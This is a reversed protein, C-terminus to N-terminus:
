KTRVFWSEISSVSTTRRSQIRIRKMWLSPQWAVLALLVRLHTKLESAYRRWDPKRLLFKKIVTWTLRIVRFIYGGWVHLVQRSSGNKFVMALRNRETLYVFFPSWEKTTGCHIHRILATPAYIVKWGRIRARWSLDTDEYYMFFDDDLLGIDALMERKLLLSAGCGAFVEEVDRYQGKDKEFLVDTNYVYTGRDRGAGNYFIISGTNQEVPGALSRISDPLSIEISVPSLDHIEGQWFDVEGASLTVHVPETVAITMHLTVPGDSAPVPIGLLGRGNTNRFLKGSLDPRWGNFGDLYQVVGHLAGSDIAYVKLAFESSLHTQNLPQSNLHVDLQDYFLQLHGCIIGARADAQATKILEALWNPDPSTDNNLLVIYAGKAQRIAVNNGTAFGLNKGNELLHAWPFQEHLLSTTEDRSGNDSVIVEFCDSPYTQKALAQLCTPLYHAGNYNVIIISVFPQDAM